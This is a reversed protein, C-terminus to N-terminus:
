QRSFLPQNFWSCPFNFILFKLTLNKIFLKQHSAKTLNKKYFNFISGSQSVKPRSNNLAEEVDQYKKQRSLTARINRFDSWWGISVESSNILGKVHSSSPNDALHPSLAIDLNILSSYIPGLNKTTLKFNITSIDHPSNLWLSTTNGTYWKLHCFWLLLLLLLLLM